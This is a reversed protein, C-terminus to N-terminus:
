ESVEKLPVTFCRWGARELEEERIEVKKMTPIDDFYLPHKVSMCWFCRYGSVKEIIEITEAKAETGMNSDEIEAILEEINM